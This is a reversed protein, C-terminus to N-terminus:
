EEATQGSFSMLLNMNEVLYGLGMITCDMPERALLVPINLEEAIFQDMGYLQTGGGTLHIGGRMIDGALEPPTRELVWKIATLVSQCPDRLAEYCQQTDFIVEKANHPGTGYPTGVIKSRTNHSLPIATGFDKKLKEATRIGISVKHERLIYAAIAEDMKNGGLRVSHAVVMGGLSVLAVDTTGGGIDVVMSGVPEYVPLGSGIAAAYPKEVLFVHKVGAQHAAEEVARREVASLTSPVAIVAKPKMFHSSGIAKRILSKLLAATMEFDVISGNRLPFVTELQDNVRGFMVYADDGVAVVLRKNKADRVIISPESVVVGRGRVYITTNSTGLDIGIEPSFM